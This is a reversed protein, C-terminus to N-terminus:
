LIEFIWKSKLQYEHNNLFAAAAVSSTTPLMQGPTLLLGNRHAYVSESGEGIVQASDSLWQENAKQGNGPLIILKM